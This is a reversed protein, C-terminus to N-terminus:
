YIASNFFKVIMDTGQRIMHPYSKLMMKSLCFDDFSELLNIMLEFSKPRESSIALDLATRGNIDPHLIVLPM